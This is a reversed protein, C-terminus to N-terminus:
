ESLKTQGLWYGVVAALAAEFPQPVNGTKIFVYISPALIAATVLAVIFQPTSLKVTWSPNYDTLLNLVDAWREYVTGQKNKVFVCSDHHQRQGGPQTEESEIFVLTGGLFNPVQKWINPEEAKPAYREFELKAIAEEPTLPQGWRRKRRQNADDNSSSNATDDSM